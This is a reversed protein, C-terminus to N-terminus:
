APRAEAVVGVLETKEVILRFSYSESQRGEDTWAEFDISERDTDSLGVSCVSCQTKANYIIYVHVDALLQNHSRSCQHHSISVISM